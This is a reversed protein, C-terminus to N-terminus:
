TKRVFFPYLVCDIITNLLLFTLKKDINKTLKKIVSSKKHIIFPQSLLNNTFLIQLFSAKKYSIVREYKEM